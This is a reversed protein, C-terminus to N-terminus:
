SSYDAHWRPEGLTVACEFAALAEGLEEAMQTAHSFLAYVHNPGDVLCEVCADGITASGGELIAQGSWYHSWAEALLQMHAALVGVRQVADVRGLVELLTVLGCACEIHGECGDEKFWWCPGEDYELVVSVDDADGDSGWWQEEDDCLAEQSTYFERRQGLLELKAADLDRQLTYTGQSIVVSHRNVTWV